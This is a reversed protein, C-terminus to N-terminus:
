HIPFKSELDSDKHTESLDTPQTNSQCAATSGYLLNKWFKLTTFKVSSGIYLSSPM